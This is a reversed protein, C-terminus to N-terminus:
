REAVVDEVMVRVVSDEDPAVKYYQVTVTSGEEWAGRQKPDLEPYSFTMTDNGVRIDVSNMAGGVAIGTVTQMATDADAAQPLEGLNETAITDTTEGGTTNGEGACAALLFLAPVLLLYKKM